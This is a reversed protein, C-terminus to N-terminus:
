EHTRNKDIWYGAQDEGVIDVEYGIEKYASLRAKSERIMARVGSMNSPWSTGIKKPPLEFLFDIMIGCTKDPRIEALRGPKQIVSTNAGGGSCNFIYRIEHFTVGQVFIDSCIVRSIKNDEIKKTLDQRQSNTLVKAMVLPVSEGMYRQLLRGQKEQKIFLLTQDGEPINNRCLDSILSMLRENQIIVDKFVSQRDGGRPKIPVKIMLVKLPCIAGEGVAEKYSVMSLIPGFLGELLSDRNDYRGKLTAGLAIKRSLRFNLLQPARSQSAIAHPEDVIVLRTEDPDLRHLSDMSAVTIDDSQYKVRSGAGILKVERGPLKERMEEVTQKLLSEGPAIVVSPVGPYAKLINRLITSKGYRTPAGIMGSCNRSIAKETVERQNFRFGGMLSFEPPPLLDGPRIDKLKYPIGEQVAWTVAKFWYGQLTLVVRIGDVEFVSYPKIKKRRFVTNWGEKEMSKEEFELEPEFQPPFNILAAYAEDWVILAISKSDVSAGSAAGSVSDKMSESLVFSKIFNSEQLLKKRAM